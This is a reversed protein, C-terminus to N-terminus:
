GDRGHHCDADSGVHLREHVERIDTEEEQDISIDPLLIFQLCSYCSIYCAVDKTMKRHNKSTQCWMLLPHNIGLVRPIAVDECRIIYVVKMFM